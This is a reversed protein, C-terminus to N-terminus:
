RNERCRSPEILVRYNGFESNIFDQGTNKPSNGQSGKPGSTIM